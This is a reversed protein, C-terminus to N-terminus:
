QLKKVKEWENKLIKKADKIYSVRMTGWKKIDTSGSSCFDLFELQTKIFNMHEEERHNLMLEIYSSTEWIKIKVHQYEEDNAALYKMEESLSSLTAIKSRLNEIWEKRSSSIVNAKMEAMKTEITMEIQSKAIEKASSIQEKANKFQLRGVTYTVFASILGVIGVAVSPLWKSLDSQQNKLILSVQDIKSILSNIIEPDITQLHAM